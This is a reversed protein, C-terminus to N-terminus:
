ERYVDYLIGNTIVSFGKQNINCIKSTPKMIKRCEMEKCKFQNKVSIILLREECPVYLNGNVYWINKVNIEVDLRFNDYTGNSNIIVIKGEGNIVLWTKTSKDYIVNYKTEEYTCEIKCFNYDNCYIDDRYYVSKQVMVFKSDFAVGFCKLIGTSESIRYHEKVIEGGSTVTRKTIITKEKHFDKYYISNGNAVLNNDDVLPRTEICIDKELSVVFFKGRTIVFAFKEDETIMVDKILDPNGGFCPINKIVYRHNDTLVIAYGECIAVNYNIACIISEDKFRTNEIAVFKTNVKILETIGSYMYNYQKVLYPVISVRLENEFINYFSNKLEASMWDWKEAVAPLKMGHKGLLSIRREIKTQIDM